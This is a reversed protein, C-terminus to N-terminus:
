QDTHSFGNYMLVFSEFVHFKRLVDKVNKM